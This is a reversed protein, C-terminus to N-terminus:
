GRVQGHVRQGRRAAEDEKEFEVAETECSKDGTLCILITNHIQTAADKGGYNLQTTAAEPSYIHPSVDKYFKIKSFIQEETRRVM